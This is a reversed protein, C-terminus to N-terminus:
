CALHPRRPTGAKALGAPASVTQPTLAAPFLVAHLPGGLGAVGSGGLPFGHLFSFLQGGIPFNVLWVKRHFDWGTTFRPARVAGEWESFFSCAGLGGSAHM